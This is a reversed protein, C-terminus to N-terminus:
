HKFRNGLKKGSYEFGRLYPSLNNNRGDDEKNEPQHGVNGRGSNVPFRKLSKEQVERPLPM